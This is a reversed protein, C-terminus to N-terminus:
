AENLLLTMLNELQGREPAASILASADLLFVQRYHLSPPITSDPHMLSNAFAYILETKGSGARGVLLANRKGQGGFISILQALEEKHTELEIASGVASLNTGFRSLHPIWGFSWDRGIGGPHPDRAKHRELTAQLRNYWRIGALLDDDDLQLHALLATHNPIQRAIAAMLVGGHMVMSDTQQMVRKAEQWVALTDDRSGSALQELFSRGVGLRAAFFQGSISAGAAMVIQQPTPQSPLIGLISSDLLEDIRTGNKVPPLALLSTRYWAAVMAPLMACGILAWGIAYGLFLAAIGVIVLMVAGIELTLVWPRLSSAVRAQYARPSNPRFNVEMVTGMWYCSSHPWSGSFAARDAM